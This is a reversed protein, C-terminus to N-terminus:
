AIDLAREILRCVAVFAVNATVAFGSDCSM